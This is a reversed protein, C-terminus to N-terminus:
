KNDGEFDTGSFIDDMDTTSIITQRL